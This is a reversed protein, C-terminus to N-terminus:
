MLTLYEKGVDVYQMYSDNVEKPKVIETKM